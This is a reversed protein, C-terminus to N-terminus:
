KFIYRIIVQNYLFLAKNFMGNKIYAAGEDVRLKTAMLISIQKKDVKSKQKRRSSKM